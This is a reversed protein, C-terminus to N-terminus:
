AVFGFISLQNEVETRKKSKRKKQEEISKQLLGEYLTQKERSDASRTSTEAPTDSAAARLIETIDAAESVQAAAPAIRNRHPNIVAMKKFAAAIDEVNDKIGQALEKAMQSTMDQVDSMAALGEESFTGEIIGAVALKSAMLKMAKAQMTNAYYLMYVEVCPATQNIRWSRRSAQRLTFLNYGMSYFILTTFANLDLGTEVCKPNTILVQLGSSVRKEVWAERKEPPIKPTLIETRIGERTLLGLLKQQSDTRTWSTYILVREGAAIKRRVIELAKEEKPLITGFDATNEPHLLVTKREGLPYLIDPQDYPQDPYVTLFNLYTSLLKNAAKRDSKLTDQLIGEARKYAKFVKEPMKLPVPIEEYDPLDKGMDSLSLFATYELLFRSFVLPSVGPLQRSKSKRKTTRRNSNYDGDTVEYTNEVVGYEADFDSPQRYGKGDKRMLGPVIRYLLHFIGSSYGNILTATMGVFQKATGYIEAMADGQGSANNYEHLEDALFGDIKGRLKKKIYTSLPYRRYAGKVPYWGDPNEKIQHLEERIARNKTRLMHSDAGRRFVWGYGGIRVWPIQKEPNVPAWLVASCRPCKHNKKHETQFFFQDANVMYRIGDDSIEMQLPEMCDPCLFANRRRNWTVAPYRMYGDRAKEKSLVAYVSKDGEQYMSYLRNLDTISRVVMAYTDPLTEGIERVWKQTVHSPSMVVSFTKEAVKRRQSAWLGYLAGLATSGIKTKGSGCEAIILAAGKRDLQRKVSEAVALQADYLSYGAKTQIYDNVALVEESLPESAPDFLPHFQDRIRDAVTVGFTNLYSTVNTVDEFGDPRSPDGGPIAISGDALGQELVEVVNRDEPLLDLVWADLREKISHVELPRLSGRSILAELVYDRFAPILPAATKRDLEEFLRDRDGAPCFIYCKRPQKQQDLKDRAKEQASGEKSADSDGPPEASQMDDSAMLTAAAYPGDHALQRQYGKPRSKLSLGGENQVAEVTAGGYIADSMARVMEPYGGFRIASIIQDKGDRDLIITDAYATLRVEAKPDFYTLEILKSGAM